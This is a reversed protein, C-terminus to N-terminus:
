ITFITRAIIKDPDSKTPLNTKYMENFGYIGQIGGSHVLLYHSGANGNGNNLYNLFAFVLKGTYIPDLTIGTADYFNRILHLLQPTTKGIGGFELDPAFKMKSLVKEDMDLKNLEEPTFIDVDKVAGMAFLNQGQTLYQAIALASTGTGYSIWWKDYRFNSKKNIEAVFDKFGLLAIGSKGGMPINFVSPHSFSSDALNVMERYTYKSLYKLEMGTKELFRLTHGQFKPKEGNIYGITSLGLSRGAWALASLHNSFYGGFSSVGSYGNKLLYDLPYLLKRFKNGSVSEHNLYDLIMHVNFRHGFLYFFDSVDVLPAPQLNLRKLIESTDPANM